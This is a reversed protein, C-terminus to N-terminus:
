PAEQEAAQQAMEAAAAEAIADQEDALVQQFATISAADAHDIVAGIETKFRDAIARRDLGHEDCFRALNALAEQEPSPHAAREYSSTDPDPEDTPLMLTQLLATRLAVSHAKATAKDGSDFAEGATTAKVFDGAPGYFTFEVILRAHGMETRKTGVVVTGYEYSTVNPTVFVGHECLAPYVANMVTDIGRFNYGSGQTNRESKSVAGVQKMVANLAEFVTVVGTM